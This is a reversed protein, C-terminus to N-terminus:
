KQCNCGGYSYEKAVEQVLKLRFLAELNDADNNILAKDCFRRFDSNQNYFQHLDM